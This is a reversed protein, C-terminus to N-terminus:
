EKTKLKDILEQAPSAVGQEADEAVPEDIIPTEIVEPTQVVPATPTKPMSVGQNMLLELLQTQKASQEALMAIVDSNVGGGNSAKAVERALIMQRDQPRALHLDKRYGHQFRTIDKRGSNEKEYEEIIAQWQTDLTARGIRISTEAMQRATELEGATPMITRESTTGDLERVTVAVGSTAVSACYARCADSTIWKLWCTPCTERLGLDLEDAGECVQAIPCVLNLQGCIERIRSLSPLVTRSIVTMKASDREGVFGFQIGWNIQSQADGNGLAINLADQVEAATVLSIEETPQTWDISHREKPTQFASVPFFAGYPATAYRTERANLPKDRAAVNIAWRPVLADTDIQPPMDLAVADAVVATASSPTM